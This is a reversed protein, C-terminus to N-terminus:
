DYRIEPGLVARALALMQPHGITAELYADHEASVAGPSYRRRAQMRKQFGELEGAAQGRATSDNLASRWRCTGM